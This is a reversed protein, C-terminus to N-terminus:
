CTALMQTLATKEASQLSLKYTYKVWIWERAYICHVSTNTPKWESPDKDGKSRNSSATVAILQSITLNNAFEQRKATTWTSAGSKWAESLPVIHDIDVDSSDNVWTSDYVSYWRGATPQCSSDVTVGSGDRKLVQERTDCTGSQIIWHPFKDRSYGTSSGEAKVTLSALQTAATSASPPTPPYAMAQGTSLTWATVAAAATTLVATIRRM